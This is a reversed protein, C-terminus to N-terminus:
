LCPRSHGPRDRPARGRRGRPRQLRRRASTTSRSCSGRAPRRSRWCTRTPSTTSTSTTASAPATPRRTTPASSRSTRGSASRAQLRAPDPADRPRPGRRHQRRDAGAANFYRLSIRGCATRRPTTPAPAEFALKTNGYPNIPQQPRGRRDPRTQPVGYTACTSSFVLRSVGTGACRRSCHSRRRRRQQPLVAGPDGSSEGVLSRAAFHVVADIAGRFSTTSHPGPRRPRRRGPACRGPRGPTGTSLNDFVVVDHGRDLFREVSTSGVYGAGGIVLIKM